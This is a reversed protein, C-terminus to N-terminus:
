GAVAMRAPAAEVQAMARRAAFAIILIAGAMLLELHEGLLPTLRCRGDALTEVFGAKEAAVLVSRAQARSVHCDRALSSLSVTRPEDLSLDGSGGDALLLEALVAFGGFRHSIVDLTPGEPRHGSLALTTLEAMATMYAAFVEDRELQPAISLIAPDAPWFALPDRVLRAKFAVMMRETPRYRRERGDEGPAPEVYGIFRLYMLSTRARGAGAMGSQKLAEALRTLTLGGLGYHLQLAFMGALYRGIDHLTRALLASDGDRVRWTTIWPRMMARFGPRARLAALTDRDMTARAAAGASTLWDSDLMRTDGGSCTIWGIKQVQFGSQRPPLCRLFPRFIRLNRMNPGSVRRNANSAAMALQSPTRRSFRAFANRNSCQVEDGRKPLNGRNNLHPGGRRSREVAALPM